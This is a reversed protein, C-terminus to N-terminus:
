GALRKLAPSRERSTNSQEQPDGAAGAIRTFMQSRASAGLTRGDGNSGNPWLTRDQEALWSLLERAQKAWRLEVELAYIDTSLNLGLLLHYARVRVDDTDPLEERMGVIDDLRETCDREYDDLKSTLKALRDPGAFNIKALLPRRPLRVTDPAEDFWREFEEVGRETIQFVHREDQGDPSKHVREILGAVELRKVAQYLPGSNVQWSPGLREQLREAMQYPYAPRDLLLGLLVHKPPM